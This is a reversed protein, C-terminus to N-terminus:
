FHRSVFGGLYVSFKGQTAGAGFQLRQYGWQGAQIGVRATPVATPRQTIFNVAGGVAEPGYISSVPGKVVEISNDTFQNMELLANQDFVGRPRIPVGDEMYLFYANTTIPQRIAMMHQENGLNVMLVGPTKNIVEYIRTPKTENILRASRKFLVIPTETRLAAERNGTVVVTQLDEIAPDPSIPVPQGLKLTIEQRSYPYVNSRNM